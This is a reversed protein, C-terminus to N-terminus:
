AIARIGVEAAVAAILRRLVNHRGGDHIRLFAKLRAAHADNSVKLPLFVTGDSAVTLEPYMPTSPDVFQAVWTLVQEATVGAPYVLEGAAAKERYFCLRRAAYLARLEAQTEPSRLREAFAAVDPVRGLEIRHRVAMTRRRSSDSLYMLVTRDSVPTFREGADALRLWLDWDELGTHETTWGGVGEALGRVHGVRSPEYMPWLLQLEPHWVANLPESRYQEEDQANMAVSATAVLRAGGEFERRLVALHEPLWRDDSDLYAVYPATVAALGINRPAV